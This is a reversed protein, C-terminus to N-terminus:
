DDRFEVRSFAVRDYNEQHAEEVVFSKIVEHGKWDIPITGGATSDTFHFLPPEEETGSLVSTALGFFSVAVM